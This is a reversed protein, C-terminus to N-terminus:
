RLRFMGDMLAGKQKKWKRTSAQLHSTFEALSDIQMPAAFPPVHERGASPEAVVRVAYNDRPRLRKVAWKQVPVALGYALSKRRSNERGALRVPEVAGPVVPLYERLIPAVPHKVM